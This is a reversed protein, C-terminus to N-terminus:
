ANVWGVSLLLAVFLLSVAFWASGFRAATYPSLKMVAGLLIMGYAPFLLQDTSREIADKITIHGHNVAIQWIWYRVQHISWGFSSIMVGGIVVGRYPGFLPIQDGISRSMDLRLLIHAMVGAMAFLTTWTAFRIAVILEPM